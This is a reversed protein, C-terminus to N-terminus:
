NTTKKVTEKECNVQAYFYGEIQYMEVVERCLTKIAGVAVPVTRAELKLPELLQDESFVYNGMFHIKIKVEPRIKILLKARYREDKIIESSSSVWARIFGRRRLFLLITKELNKVDASILPNNVYDLSIGRIDDRLRTDEVM